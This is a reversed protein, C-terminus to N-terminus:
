SEGFCALEKAVSCSFWSYAVVQGKWALFCFFGEMQWPPLLIPLWSVDGQDLSWAPSPSQLLKLLDGFTQM